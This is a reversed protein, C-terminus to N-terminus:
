HADAWSAGTGVEAIFRADSGASWWRVTSALAQHLMAVAADTHSSPVHVLLEDHLCLVIQGDLGVLGDRVTAAWAKFLEAAPGQVAANRSYRGHSAAVEPTVAEGTADRDADSLRILRGGYTRMDTHERGHAEAARLFSVAHPYAQEMARITEGASGSTQGYMAALVAIKATPRDCRLREAVPSYMDADHTARVLAVDGSIAALVRPEVQGLDARILAHGAEARVAPRLEAPLNHLGAMATMRGAGGDAVSWAGRLRDDPGVNTDLWRWGYTTTMRDAKRWALLAAVAPSTAAHPELRWSRTDPLDLGIRTLLERVQAPSRLDVDERGGFEQLVVLDRAQRLATEDEADAPRDGIIERLLRAAAERQLPLGYHEMEVALLAAASEAYATLVALSPQRAGARPDPLAALRQAQRGQLDLALKAWIQAASLDETGRGAAWERSLQGDSRVPGTEEHDLDFLDLVARPPAPAALEFEAAWVAGPDDHRLGHVLRGIAGLDWSTRLRLGSAVLPAATTRASWWTWRPDVAALDAVVSAPDATRVSWSGAAWALAVGAGPVVVLAVPEGRGIGALDNAIRV